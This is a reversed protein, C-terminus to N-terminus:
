VNVDEGASHLEEHEGLSLEAEQKEIDEGDEEDEQCEEDVMDVDISSSSTSPLTHPPSFHSIITPSTPTLVPRARMDPLKTLTYGKLLFFSTHSRQEESLRTLDKMPNGNKDVIQAFKLYHRRM